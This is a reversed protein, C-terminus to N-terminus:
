LKRLRLYGIYPISDHVFIILKTRMRSRRKITDLSPIMNGDISIKQIKGDPAQFPGNVLLLALGAPFAIIAFIFEPRSVPM